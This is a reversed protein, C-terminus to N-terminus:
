NSGAPSTPASCSVTDSGQTRVFGNKGPKAVKRLASSIPGTSTSMEHSGATAEIYDGVRVTMDAPLRVKWRAWSDVGPSCEGIVIRGKGLEGPDIERNRLEEALALDYDWYHLTSYAEVRMQGDASVPGCRFQRMPVKPKFSYEPEFYESAQGRAQGVWHGFFRAYPGETGDAEEAKVLLIDGATVKRGEPLLIYGHRLTQGRGPEFHCGAVVLRAASVDQATVGRQIALSLGPKWQLERRTTPLKTVVMVFHEGPSPMSMCAPPVALPLLLPILNPWSPM